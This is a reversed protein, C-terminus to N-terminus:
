GQDRHRSCSSRASIATSSSAPRAEQVSAEMLRAQKLMAPPLPSSMRFLLRAYRDTLSRDDTPFVVPREGMVSIHLNFLLVDGDRSALRRLTAAAPEPDGDTAAGDSINIVIPPFCSPHDNVFATVIENATQLALCM